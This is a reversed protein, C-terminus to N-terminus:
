NNETSLLKQIIETASKYDTMMMADKIQEIEEKLAGSFELADLDKMREQVALFDMKGFAALLKKFIPPMEPLIKVPGYSQGKKEFADGLRLKISNLRELFPSLNLTCFATDSNEAAFELEKATMSLEIAGINALSGKMRHVEISFNNMDGAGLFDYLNRGCKEIEKILLKLSGEYVSERGSVRELGEQVSIDEIKNIREWFKRCIGAEDDLAREDKM